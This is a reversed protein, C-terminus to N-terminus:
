AAAYGSESSSTRWDAPGSAAVDGNGVDRVLAPETRGLTEGRM